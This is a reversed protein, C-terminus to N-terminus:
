SALKNFHDRQWINLVHQMGHNLKASPRKSKVAHFASKWDPAHGAAVLCACLVTVSRGRGYACHILVPGDKRKEAAFLVAREIDTPCPPTGDWTPICLYKHPAIEVYEPLECTLDVVGGWNLPVKCSRWGGVYWGSFIETADDDPKGSLQNAILHIRSILMLSWFAPYSWFSMHGTRFDKGVIGSYKRLRMLYAVLLTSAGGWMVFLSLPRPVLYYGVALKVSGLLGMMKVPGGLHVIEQVIGM